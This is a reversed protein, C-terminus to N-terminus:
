RKLEDPLQPQYYGWASSTKAGVQATFCAICSLISLIMVQIKSLKSIIANM